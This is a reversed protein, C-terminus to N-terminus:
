ALPRIEVHVGLNRLQEVLRAFDGASLSRTGNQGPAGLVVVDAQHEQVLTPLVADLRGELIVTDVARVGRREARDRLMLMMFESMSRLEDLMLRPIGVTAYALFEADIGHVFTLRAQTDLALEIARTVTARSHPIGRVACLVHRIPERM